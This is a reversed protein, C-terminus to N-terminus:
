EKCQNCVPLVPAEEDRPVVVVAGGFGAAFGEVAGVVRVGVDAIPEIGEVLVADDGAVLQWAELFLCPLLPLRQFIKSLNNSYVSFLEYSQAVFLM